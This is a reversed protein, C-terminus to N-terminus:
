GSTNQPDDPEVHQREGVDNKMLRKAFVAMTCLLVAVVSPQGVVCAVLMVVSASMDLRGFRLRLKRIRVVSIAAQRVAVQGCLGRM